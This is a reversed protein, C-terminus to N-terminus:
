ASILLDRAAEQLLAIAQRESVDAERLERYTDYSSLVLLLTLARRPTLGARLRRAHDLNRVLREYESRRDARQRDVLDQAAPDVAAVGYLQRLVADESSWFRVTLRITEALAADADSLEVAKRLQLLAPNEDFSECIADVLELRSRFHQYLTARAVGARDAVEEVTSEHFVGETLLERVARKIKERTEESRKSRGRTRYARSSMSLSDLCKIRIITFGPCM